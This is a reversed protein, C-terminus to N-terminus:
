EAVGNPKTRGRMRGVKDLADQRDMRPDHKMLERVKAERAHWMALDEDLDPDLDREDSVREQEDVFAAVAELRRRTKGSAALLVDTESGCGGFVPFCWIRVANPDEPDFWEAFLAAEGCIPCVQARDERRKTPTTPYRGRMRHLEPLVAQVYRLASEHEIIRGQYRVLWSTVAATLAKAERASVAAHFGHVDGNAIHWGAVASVPPQLDLEGAFFWSWAVLGSYLADGDDVPVEQLPLAGEGSPAGSPVRNARMLHVIEPTELLARRLRFGTVKWWTDTIQDPEISTIEM